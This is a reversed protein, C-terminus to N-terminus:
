EDLKDLYDSLAKIAAKLREIKKETEPNAYLKRVIYDNLIEKERPSLKNSLKQSEIFIKEADILVQLAKRGEESTINTLDYRNWQDAYNVLRNLLEKGKAVNDSSKSSKKSSKRSTQSSSSPEYSSDSGSTSAYSNLGLFLALLLIISLKKM